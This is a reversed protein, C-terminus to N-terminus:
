TGLMNIIGLLLFLAALGLPIGVLLTLINEILKM